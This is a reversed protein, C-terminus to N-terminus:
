VMESTKTAHSYHSVASVIVGNIRVIQMRLNISPENHADSNTILLSPAIFQRMVKREMKGEAYDGVIMDGTQLKARLQPSTDVVIISNPFIGVQNLASSTVRYLTQNEKARIHSVEPADDTIAEVDDDFSSGHGSFGAIEEPPIDFAKALRELWAMTIQTRGKELDNVTSASSNTRQALERMSWGRAERLERIRNNM